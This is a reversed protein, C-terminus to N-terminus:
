IVTIYDYLTHYPQWTKEREREREREGEERM